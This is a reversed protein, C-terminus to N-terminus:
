RTTVKRDCWVGRFDVLEGDYATVVACEEAVHLYRIQDTDDLFTATPAALPHALDVAVVARVKRVHRRPEVEDQRVRQRALSDVIDDYALTGPALEETEISEAVDVVRARYMVAGGKRPRYSVRVTSDRQPLPDVM